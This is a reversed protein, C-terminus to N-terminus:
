IVARQFSKVQRMCLPFFLLFCWRAFTQLKKKKKLVGGQFRRIKHPRSLINGKVAFNARLIWLYQCQRRPIKTFKYGALLIIEMQYSLSYSVFLQPTAFTKWRILWKLRAFTCVQFVFSCFPHIYISHSSSHLYDNICQSHTFLIKTQAVLWCCLEFLKKLINANGLTTFLSIGCVWVLTTRLGLEFQIYCLVNTFVSLTSGGRM